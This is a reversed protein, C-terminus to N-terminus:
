PVRMAADWLRRRLAQPLDVVRDAEVGLGHRWPLKGRLESLAAGAERSVGAAAGPAASSTGLAVYDTLLAAWLRAVQKPEPADTRPSAGPPNAYAAADENTVRLILDAAGALAVGAPQERAEFAVKQGGRAGGVLLNLRSSAQMARQVVSTPGEGSALLLVPAIETGVAVQGRRGEVPLVMFRPVWTGEVLRLVRHRVPQSERDFARVVIPADISPLPRTPPPIVVILETSSAGAVLAASGDVTVSDAWPDAAFGAGRIRLVEGAVAGAPEIGTVLPLRGIILQLPQSHRAGETLVVVPVESGVAVELPPVAFTLQRAEVALLKAEAGAVTVRVQGSFGEGSLVVEDGPLAGSPELGLARLPALVRLDVARSRGRGQEVTVAVTGSALTPVRVQLSEGTLSEAPVRTSGFCVINRSADSDFRSGKISLVQGPEAEGPSISDVRPGRLLMRSAGWVLAALALVAGASWVLQPSVRLRPRRGRARTTQSRRQTLKPGPAATASAPGPSTASSSAIEPAPPEPTLGKPVAARVRPANPTGPAVLDLLDGDLLTATEIPEGNLWTGNRSGNDVMWVGNEDWRVKVHALDVGPFDLRLNALRGSGVIITMGFALKMDYGDLPGGLVKLTPEEVLPDSMLDEVGSMVAVANYLSRPRRRRRAAVCTPFLVHNFLPNGRGPDGVLSALLRAEYWGSDLHLTVAPCRWLCHAARSRAV